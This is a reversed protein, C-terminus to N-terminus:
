YEHKTSPHSLFYLVGCLRFICRISLCMYGLFKKKAMVRSPMSPRRDKSCSPRPLRPWLDPAEAAERGRDECPLSPDSGTRWSLLVGDASARGVVSRLRSLGSCCGSWSISSRDPAMDASCNTGMLTRNPLPLFDPKALRYDPSLSAKTSTHAHHNHCLPYIRTLSPLRSMSAQIAHKKLSDNSRLGLDAVWGPKQYGM